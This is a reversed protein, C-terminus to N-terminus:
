YLEGDSIGDPAAPHHTRDPRQTSSGNYKPAGREERGPIRTFLVLPSPAALPAKHTGPDTHQTITDLV